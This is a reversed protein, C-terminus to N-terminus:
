GGVLFKTLFAFLYDVAGIFVAYIFVFVLVTVTSNVIAKRTPWSVRRMENRVDLLYRRIWKFINREKKKVNMASNPLGPPIRVGLM